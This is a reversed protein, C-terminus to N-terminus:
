YLYINPDASDELIVNKQKPDKANLYERYYLLGVSCTYAVLPGFNIWYSYGLYVMKDSSMQGVLTYYLGVNHIIVINYMAGWLILYLIIFGCALGNYIFLSKVSLFFEIPNAVTNYLALGASFLGTSISLIIFIVTCLWVGANLFKMDSSASGSYTRHSGSIPLYYVSTTVPCNSMSYSPDINGEYLNDLLTRREDGDKGCLLACVNHKFSCTMLVQYNVTSFQKFNGQFLGYNVDSLEPSLEDARTQGHIWKETSLSLLTLAVGAASIVASAFVYGRNTKVM